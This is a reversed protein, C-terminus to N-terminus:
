ENKWAALFIIIAVYRSFRPLHLVFRVRYKWDRSGLVSQDRALCSVWPPNECIGFVRAVEKSCYPM